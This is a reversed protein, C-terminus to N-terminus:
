LKEFLVNNVCSTTYSQSARSVYWLLAVVCESNLCITCACARVAAAVVPIAVITELDDSVDARWCQRGSTSKSLEAANQQGHHRYRFGESSHTMM